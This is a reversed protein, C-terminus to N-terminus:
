KSMLVAAAATVIYFSLLAWWGVVVIRRPNPIFALVIMSALAGFGFVAACVTVLNVPSNGTGTWRAISTIASMLVAIVTALGLLEGLSFQKMETNVPPEGSSILPAPLLRQFESPEDPSLPYEDPLPQPPEDHPEPM